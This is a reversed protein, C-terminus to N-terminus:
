RGKVPFAATRRAEFDRYDSCGNAISTAAIIQNEVLKFRTQNLINTSKRVSRWDHKLM